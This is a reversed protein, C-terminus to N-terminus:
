IDMIVINEGASSPLVGRVTYERTHDNIQLRLTEGAHAAIRRGVWVSDSVDAGTESDDALDSLKQDGNERDTAEAILDLGVLPVSEGSDPLVAYDEIRPRVRMAYPLTALKGVIDDPVGGTATVEIESDGALTEVSSRFSGAAADGALEIAIVVAVGLAVAFITLATRVPERFLPRMMLRYFLLLRMKAARLRRLMGM